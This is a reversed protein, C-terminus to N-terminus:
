EDSADINLLSLIKAHMIKAVEDLEADSMNETNPIQLYIKKM